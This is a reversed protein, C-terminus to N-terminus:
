DPPLTQLLQLAQQRATDEITHQQLFLKLYHKASAVEKLFLSLKGLFFYTEKFQPEEQVQKLAAQLAKQPKEANMFCRILQLREVGSFGQNLASEIEQEAQDYHKMQLTIQIFQEWLRFSGPSTKLVENMYRKAPELEALKLSLESLKLLLSSDELSESLQQYAELAKRYEQKEEYLEGLAKYSAETYEGFTSAQRYSKEAEELNKFNKRYLEGQLYWAVGLRPNQLLAEKSEQLAKQAQGQQLYIKWLNLRAEHHEPSIQVVRKLTEVSQEIKQLRHYCHALRYLLVSDKPEQPLVKLIFSIAQDFKKEEMYLRVQLEHGLPLQPFVQTVQDM